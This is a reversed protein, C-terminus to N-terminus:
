NNVVAAPVMSFGTPFYTYLTVIAPADELLQSYKKEVSEFEFTDTLFSIINQEDVAHIEHHLKILAPVDEVDPGNYSTLMAFTGVYAMAMKVLRTHNEYWGELNLRNLRRSTALSSLVLGLMVSAEPINLKHYEPDEPLKQFTSVLRTVNFSGQAADQPVTYMLKRVTESGQATAILDMIQPWDSASSSTEGCLLALHAQPIAFPRLVPDENPKGNKILGKKIMTHLNMSELVVSIGLKCIEPKTLKGSRGSFFLSNIEIKLKIAAKSFENEDSFIHKFLSLWTEKHKKAEEVNKPISHLGFSLIIEYLRDDPSYTAVEESLSTTEDM